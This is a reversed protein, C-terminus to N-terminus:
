RFAYHFSLPSNSFPLFPQHAGRFSPGVALDLARPVEDGLAAPRADEVRRSLAVVRNRDVVM